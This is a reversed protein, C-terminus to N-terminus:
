RQRDWRIYARSNLFSSLSRASRNHRQPSHECGGLSFVPVRLGTPGLRRFPMGKSDYELPM